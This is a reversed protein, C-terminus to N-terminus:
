DSPGYRAALSEFILLANAAAGGLRSETFTRAATGARTRETPDLWRRLSREVGDANGVSVAGGAAVPEGAEEANSHNPGFLVPVGLAAPEVVSHVGNAHFAGGVFAVDSIAYLDALVGVRDVLVVAPLAASSAEVDGLRACSLGVARASQQAQRLHDEHPEHPALIVRLPTSLAIRAVAPMLEREDAPWTSGAVLTLVAPDRLRLLLPQEPQLSQVRRWVQDFRADGTVRVRDASVGLRAYRSATQENVAGVASLRQYARGLFNRALPRLRSSGASLVANVLLSPIDRAAAQRVLNPWIESRVFAIASPRLLDLASRLNATTDWPLYTAIDAGVRERVREASPSFHTFAIQAEPMRSRLEQIIAQAMLSEGVSPAHVWILPARKRQATSWDRLDALATARGAVGRKLKANLPAVARVLPLAARLALDYGLESVSMHSFM